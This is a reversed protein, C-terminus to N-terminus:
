AHARRRRVIVATDILLGDGNFWRVQEGEIVTQLGLAEGYAWHQWQRFWLGGEVWWRGTDRDENSYGSRGSL